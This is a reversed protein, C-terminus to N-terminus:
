RAKAIMQKSVQISLNYEHQKKASIVCWKEKLDFSQGPAKDL